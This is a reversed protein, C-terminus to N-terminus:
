RQIMKRTDNPGYPKAEMVRGLFPPKKFDYRSKEMLKYANPDFGDSIHVMPLDNEEQLLDKSSTVVGLLSAKTMKSYQTKYVLLRWNGLIVDYNVKDVFLEPHKLTTVMHQHM